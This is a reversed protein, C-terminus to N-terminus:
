RKEAILEVQQRGLQNLLKAEGETAARESSRIIGVLGTVEVRCLDQAGTSNDEQVFLRVKASCNIAVSLHGLVERCCGDIELDVWSEMGYQSLETVAKQIKCLESAIRGAETKARGCM